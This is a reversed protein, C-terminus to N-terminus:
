LPMERFWDSPDVLEGLEELAYELQRADRTRRDMQELKRRVIPIARDDGYQWLDTSADGPSEDLDRLLLEFIRDDCINMGALANRLPRRRERSQAAAHAALLPELAPAGIRSLADVCAEEDYEYPECTALYNILPEVAAAARIRGLLDIAHVGPWFREDVVDARAGEDVLAILDPVAADGAAIIRQSLISPLHKGVEALRAAPSASHVPRCEDICARRQLAEAESGLGVGYDPVPALLGIARDIEEATAADASYALAEALGMREEPATQGRILARYTAEGESRRGLHFLIDGLAVTFRDHVWADQSSLQLTAMAEECFAVARPGLVPSGAVVVRLEYALDVLWYDLPPGGDVHQSAAELTSRQGIRSSLADWCELWRVCAATRDTEMLRYGEAVWSGLVDRSPREPIWRKWLEVACLGLLNDPVTGHAQPLWIEHAM